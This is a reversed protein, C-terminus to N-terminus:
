GRGSVAPKMQHMLLLRDKDIPNGMWSSAMSTAQDAGYPSVVERVNNVLERLQSYLLREHGVCAQNGVLM